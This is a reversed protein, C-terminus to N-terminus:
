YYVSPVRISGVVGGRRNILHLAEWTGKKPCCAYIIPRDSFFFKNPSERLRFTRNQCVSMKGKPGDIYIFLLVVVNALAHPIFRPAISFM